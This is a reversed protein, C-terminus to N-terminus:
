DPRYRHPCIDAPTLCGFHLAARIADSRGRVGLKGYAHTLHTKVTNPSVSLQAAIATVSIGSAALRLVETERETLPEVLGSPADVPDIPATAVATAAARPLARYGALWALGVIAVGAALYLGLQVAVLELAPLQDVAAASAVSAGGAAVMGSTAPGPGAFLAAGTVLVLVVLLHTGHDYRVLCQEILVIATGLVLVALVHKIRGSPHLVALRAALALLPDM